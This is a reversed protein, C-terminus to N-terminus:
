PSIGLLRGESFCDDSRAGDSCVTDEFNAKSARFSSGFYANTLDAESFKADEVNANVFSTDTLDSGSFDVKSVDANFFLSGRATAGTMRAGRLESGFFYAEQIQAGKLTAKKLVSESFNTRYLNAGTFDARTLNAGELRSESLDAGEFSVGSLDAKNRFDVNRLVANDFSQIGSIDTSYLDVNSLDIGEVAAGSLSARVLSVDKLNAQTLNANDLYAHDLVAGELDALTLDINRLHVGTLDLGSLDEGSLTCKTHVAGPVMPGCRVRSQTVAGEHEQWSEGDAMLSNCMSAFGVWVFLLAMIGFFWVTKKGLDEWLDALPPKIPQGGKPASPNFRQRCYACDGQLPNLTVCVHQEATRNDSGKATRSTSSASQKRDGRPPEVVPKIAGAAELAKAWDLAEPRAGPDKGFARTFLARLEPELDLWPAVKLDILTDFDATAKGRISRLFEAKKRAKVRSNTVSNLEMYTKAQQFDLRAFPSCSNKINRARVHGTGGSQDVADYPHCDDLLVQFILVALGFLDDEVTRDVEAFRKGVLRPPTFDDKGVTCRFKQGTKPDPAQISDVDILFVSRDPAALINTHNVDGVVFESRHLHAVLLAVHHAITLLDTRDLPLGRPSRIASRREPVCYNVLEEYRQLPAKPMLFGVTAGRNDALAASPWALGLVPQLESRMRPRRKLLADLKREQGNGPKHWIKAVLSSGGSIEYITGEGGSGIESGLTYPRGDSGTYTAM